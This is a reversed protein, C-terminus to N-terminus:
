AARETNRMLTEASVGIESAICNLVAEKSAQFTEKDMADEGSTRQSMATAYIVVRDEVAVVAHSDLPRMFAAMRTAEERTVCVIQRENRYGCAILAWKRLADPSPWRMAQEESLNLWAERIAAFYHRHSRTSRPEEVSLHYIGGIVFYRDAQTAHFPTAPKFSDGDWVYSLPPYPM